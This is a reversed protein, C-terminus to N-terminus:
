KGKLKDYLMDIAAETMERKNKYKGILEAIKEEYSIDVSLGITKPEPLEVMPPKRVISYVELKPKLLEIATISKDSLTTKAWGKGQVKYVKLGFYEASNKFEGNHYQTPTCDKIDRQWNKLHAMEHLLTELVETPKRWLTEATLNIEDIETIEDELKHSWFKRGYWGLTNKSGKQITIIPRILENNCFHKNFFDFSRYLENMLALHKEKINVTTPETPTIIVNELM